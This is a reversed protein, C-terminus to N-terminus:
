LPGIGLRVVHIQKIPFKRSILKLLLEATASGLQITKQFMLQLNLFFFILTEKVEKLDSAVVPYIGFSLKRWDIILINYNGNEIYAEVIARVSPSEANEVYGHSYLMIPETANFSPHALVAAAKDLDYITHDDYM